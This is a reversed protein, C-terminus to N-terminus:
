FPLPVIMIASESCTTGAPCQPLPQSAPVPEKSSSRGYSIM